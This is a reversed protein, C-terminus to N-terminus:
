EPGASSAVMEVGADKITAHDLIVLLCSALHLQGQGPDFLEEKILEDLQKGYQYDTDGGHEEVVGKRLESLARKAAEFLQDQDVVEFELSVKIKDKVKSLPKEETKVRLCLSNRWTRRYSWRAIFSLRFLLKVSATTGPPQSTEGTTNGNCAGCRGIAEAFCPSVGNAM